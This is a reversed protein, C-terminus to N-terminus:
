RMRSRLQHEDRIRRVPNESLWVEQVRRADHGLARGLQDLRGRWRAHFDAAENLFAVQQRGHLTRAVRLLAADVDATLTPDLLPTWDSPTTDAAARYAALRALLAAALAADIGRFGKGVLYIESNSPRSTLPKVIYLEDFLAALLAILSRSFPTFFTYQKSVLHGGPALTLLGSLVQGYNLLATLEEQRNFDSSVDIGADSTYLSAGSAGADGFRAHVAAALAAVVEADTLDGTLHKSASPPKGAASKGMAPEGKASEGMAPEGTAPSGTAPEGTTSEGMASEATASEATAPEGTASEATANPAPNMANPAPGMLWRDRNAAYLGYDDGLITNDGSAVADDPYYSSGLWDFETQPCMTRVYHNIAVIFAGPFEANCFVRVRPVAGSECVVLRMKITLEYMKLSANTSITMGYDARMTRKLGAYLDVARMLIGFDKEPIDDLRSKAATLAGCVEAFPDAAAPAAVRALPPPLLEAPELTHLPPVLWKLFNRQTLKTIEPVHTRSDRIRPDGRRGDGHHM